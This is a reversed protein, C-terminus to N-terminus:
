FSLKNSIINNKNKVLRRIVRIKNKIISGKSRITYILAIWDTIAQEHDHTIEPKGIYNDHKFEQKSTTGDKKIHKSNILRHKNKREATYCQKRIM